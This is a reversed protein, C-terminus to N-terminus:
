NDMILSINSFNFELTNFKIFKLLKEENNKRLKRGERIKLQESLYEIEEKLRKIEKKQKKFTTKMSNQFMNFTVQKNKLDKNLKEIKKSLIRHEAFWNNKHSNKKSNSFYRKKNRKSLM